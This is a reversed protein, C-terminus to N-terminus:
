INIYNFNFLNNIQEKYWLNADTYANDIIVNDSESLNVWEGLLCAYINQM